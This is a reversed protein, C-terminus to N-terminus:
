SLAPSVQEWTKSFIAAKEEDTLGAFDKITLTLMNSSTNIILVGVESGSKEYKATLQTGAAMERKTATMTLEDTINEAEYHTVGTKTKEKM